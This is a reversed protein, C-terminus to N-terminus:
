KSVAKTKRQRVEIVKTDVLRYKGDVQKIRGSLSWRMLANNKFDTHLWVTGKRPDVGWPGWYLIGDSGEHAVVDQKELIDL